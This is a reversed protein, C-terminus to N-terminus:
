CRLPISTLCIHSQFSEPGVSLSNQIYYLDQNPSTSHETVGDFYNQSVISHTFCNKLGCGHKDQCQTCTGGHALKHAQKLPIMGVLLPILFLTPILIFFRKRLSM